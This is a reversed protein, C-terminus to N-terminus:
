SYKDILMNKVEAYDINKEFFEHHDTPEYSRGWFNCLKCKSTVSNDGEDEDFFINKWEETDFVKPAEFVVCYASYGSMGRWSANNAVSKAKICEDQVLSVLRQVQSFFLIQVNDFTSDFILESEDSNLCSGGEWNIFDFFIAYRKKINVAADIKKIDLSNSKQPRFHISFGSSYIPDDQSASGLHTIKLKKM